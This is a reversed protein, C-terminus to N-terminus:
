WHETIHIRKNDEYIQDKFTMELKVFLFMWFIKTKLYGM